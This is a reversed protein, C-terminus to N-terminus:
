EGTRQAILDNEWVSEEYLPADEDPDADEAYYRLTIETDGGGNPEEGTEWWDWDPGVVSDPTTDGGVDIISDGYCQTYSWGSGDIWGRLTIIERVKM